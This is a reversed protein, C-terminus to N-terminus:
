VRNPQKRNLPEIESYGGSLAESMADRSSLLYLGFGSKASVDLVVYLVAEYDPSIAHQGEAFIWVLPYISWLVVTLTSLKTFASAASPGADAAKARLVVAFEYVIPAFFLMGLGWFCYAINKNDAVAGIGGTIVMLLDMIILFLTKENSAGALACLDFVLLPTTIIWDFYRAYYFERGNLEVHGLGAAMTLYAVSAVATIALSVVHFLRKGHPTNTMSYFMMLSPILMGAFGIWLANYGFSTVRDVPMQDVM